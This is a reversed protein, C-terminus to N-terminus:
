RFNTIMMLDNVERDTQVALLRRGDSSMALAPFVWGPDRELRLITAVHRTAFSFFRVSQRMQNERAIFYIGDRIVGWSRSISFQALEPVPLEAGGGVPISWMACCGVSTSKTYYVTRGDPSPRSEDAGGHTVQFAVGGTAPMAWIERMGSRHSTFYIRSSDPSWAPMWSEFRESSLRRPAGGQSDIVYVNAQGSSWVDFALRLGDPSWQPSGASDKGFSTLQILNSGDAHSVWIEENGTRDSVFAVHESDPSIAPSHDARTSNIIAFPEGFGWSEGSRPIGRGTWLHINSDTWAENFSLTRGRRRAINPYSVSYLSASIALPHGGFVSVRWLSGEIPRRTSAFVIERSDATWTIGDIPRADSTLQRTRGGSAPIVFLEQASGTFERKFAVWKGDPSFAPLSDVGQTTLHTRDGSDIDLLDLGGSDSAGNVVGSVLKRGDATWCVGGWGQGVRREAGGNAPVIYIGSLINARSDYGTQGPIRRCFAISSGDPSWSPLVDEQPGFTLQRPESSKVAKVYIHQADRPSPQWSFALRNGDPALAPYDKAGEFTTLPVVDLVANPATRTRWSWTFIALGAIALALVAWKVPSPLLGVRTTWGARWLQPSRERRPDVRRIAAAFEAMSAYRATADNQLARSLVHRLPGTDRPNPPAALLAAFVEAISAGPFAAYGCVMEFLVAGLSFIDSRVNLKEGRAQEPSMYRPTGMISGTQTAQPSTQGAEGIRALGFDVIKVLGDSRMMINEPKIDRHVIGARHAAELAMACQFGIEMAEQLPLKGGSLRERVTVGEILEEAIFWTEDIQGIEYITVINPHNLASAAKAELRFRAIREADNTFVSPLIKLALERDLRSDRARYVDGMAGSGIEAVIRYPGLTSGVARAAPESDLKRIHSSLQDPSLFSGAEERAKLLSELEHLLEPDNSCSEELVASRREPPSDLVRQYLREVCALREADLM